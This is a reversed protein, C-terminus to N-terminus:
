QVEQSTEEEFEPFFSYEKIHAGFDWEGEEDFVV